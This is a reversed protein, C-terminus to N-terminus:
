VVWIGADLSAGSVSITEETSPAPFATFLSPSVGDLEIVNTNDTETAPTVAASILLKSHENSPDENEV